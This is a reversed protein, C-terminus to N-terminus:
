EYRRALTVVASKMIKEVDIFTIDRFDVDNAPTLRGRQEQLVPTTSNSAPAQKTQETKM